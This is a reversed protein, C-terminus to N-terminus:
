FPKVGGFGYIKEGKLYKQKISRQLSTKEPLESYDKFPAPFVFSFVERGASQYPFRSFEKQFGLINSDPKLITGLAPDLLWSFCIFSKPHFDDYLEDFIIRASDFSKKSNVSDIKAGRPIHVNIYDDGSKIVLEWITKSLTIPTDSCLCKEDIPYGTIETDSEDFTATFSGNGDDYLSSGLVM